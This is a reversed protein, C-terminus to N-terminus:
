QAVIVPIPMSPDEPVKLQRLLQDFRPQCRLDDFRADVRVLPFWESHGSSGQELLELDEDKRGLALHFRAAFYPPLYSFRSLDQLATHAKDRSGATAYVEGLCATPIAA